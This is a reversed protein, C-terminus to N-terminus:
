GAEAEMWAHGGAARREAALTGAAALTPCARTRYYLVRGAALAERLRASAPHEGAELAGTVAKEHAAAGVWVLTLEAEDTWSVPGLALEYCLPLWLTQELYYWSKDALRLWPSWSM